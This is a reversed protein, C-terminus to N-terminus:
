KADHIQIQIQTVSLSRFGSLLIQVPFKYAYQNVFKDHAPIHIRIHQNRMIKQYLNPDLFCSKDM